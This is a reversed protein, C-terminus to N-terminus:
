GSSKAPAAVLDAKAVIKDSAWLESARLNLQDRAIGIDELQRDSLQSLEAVTRAKRLM